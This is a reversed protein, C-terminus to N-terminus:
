IVCSYHMCCNYVMRNALDFCLFSITGKPTVQVQSHSPIHTPAASYVRVPGTEVDVDDESEDSVKQKKDM